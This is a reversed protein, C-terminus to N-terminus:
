LYMKVGDEFTVTKKSSLENIFNIEQASGYSFLFLFTLLLANHKM